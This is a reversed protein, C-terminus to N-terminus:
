WRKLEKDITEKCFGAALLLSIIHEIVESINLDDRTEEIIYTIGYQELSLKM